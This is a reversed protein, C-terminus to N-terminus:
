QSEKFSDLSKLYESHSGLDLFQSKFKNWLETDKATSAYLKQFEEDRGYDPPCETFHAGLPAEIVGDIFIRPIKLTHVSGYTPFNETEVISECSMFTKKAAMAFLDDFFLDPGLFQGNGAKDARNM